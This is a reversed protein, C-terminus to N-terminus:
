PKDKEHGKGRENPDSQNGRDGSPEAPRAPPAVSSQDPAVVRGRHRRESPVIPRPKSPASNPPHTKEPPESNLGPAPKPEQNPQPTEIVKTKQPPEQLAPQKEPKLPPASKKILTAPVPARRAAEQIPVPVMKKGSTKQILAVDPGTNVVVKQSRGEVTRTEHRINNIVTTQNIITPNNVIVTRPRVREHFQGVEVFGFFRPAIIVGVPACPAWGIFGGGVRWEVWAPAWEIDPVWVWGLESDYVWRGYHYCAWACPEDSEWYWGCDTWVWQGDCYPRWEVAIGVPHWCRGYSHVDLWAGHAALPVEFDTRANIQVSAGIELVARANFAWLSLAAALGIEVYKFITKM